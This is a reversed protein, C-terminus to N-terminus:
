YAVQQHCRAISRGCLCATNQATAAHCPRARTSPEIGDYRVLVVTTAPGNNCGGLCSAPESMLGPRHRGSPLDILDARASKRVFAGDKLSSDALRVSPTGSMREGLTPGESMSHLGSLPGIRVYSLHYLAPRDIHGEPPQPNSDRRVCWATMVCM